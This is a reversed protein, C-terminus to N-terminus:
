GARPRKARSSCCGTTMLSGGLGLTVARQPFLFDRKVAHHQYHPLITICSSGHLRQRDFHGILQKRSIALAACLRFTGFDSITRSLSNPVRALLVESQLRM